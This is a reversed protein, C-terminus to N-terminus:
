YTKSFLEASEFISKNGPRGTLFVNYGRKAFNEVAKAGIGKSGGTVIV